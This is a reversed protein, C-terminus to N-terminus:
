QRSRFVFHQTLRLSLFKTTAAAQVPTEFLIGLDIQGKRAAPFVYGAGGALVLGTYECDPDAGYLEYGVQPEIYFGNGSKSLSYRYDSLVPFISFALEPEEKWEPLQVSALAPVQPAAIFSSFRKVFGPYRWNYDIRNTALNKSM